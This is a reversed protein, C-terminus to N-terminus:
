NEVLQALKELSSVTGAENDELRIGAPINEFTITVKTRQELPELETKMIMEGALDPDSTEFKIHEVVKKGEILETFRATFRDEKVDTKGKQGTENEPYFLSMTYGGNVKLEFHHMRATMEGPVRWIVLMKPDTLANYIKAAPAKVIRSNKTSQSM